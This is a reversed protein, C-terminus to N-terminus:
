APVEDVFRAADNGNSVEIRLRWRGPPLTQISRYQGNGRSEFRLPRDPQRGLPHQAVATVIAEALPGGSGHLHIEARDGVRDAGITWGLKREAAAEDLWRNFHQSAVYSNDVVTGGFSRSAVTAMTVNVAIVVAFFGVMSVAMHRGTFGKSM